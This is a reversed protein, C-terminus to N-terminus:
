LIVETLSREWMKLGTKDKGEGREGRGDGREGRGEGRTGMGGEERREFRM